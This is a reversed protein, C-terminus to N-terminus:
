LRILRYDHMFDQRGDLGIVHLQPLNKLVQDAIGELETAFARGQNAHAGFRDLLHHAEGDGVVSNTDLFAVAPADKLHELAQVGAFLEFAGANPQGDGFLNNLAVAASYPELRNEAFACREIECNTRNCLLYITASGM